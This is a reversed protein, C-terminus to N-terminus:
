KNEMLQRYKTEAALWGRRWEPTTTLISYPKGSIFSDVGRRYEDNETEDMPVIKLSIMRKM